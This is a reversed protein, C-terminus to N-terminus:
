AVSVQHGRPATQPITVNVPLLQRLHWAQTVLKHQALRNARGLVAAQIGCMVVTALSALLITFMSASSGFEMAGPQLFLGHNELRWTGHIVGAAELLIPGILGALMIAILVWARGKEVFAPYTVLSATIFAALAPVFTFGSALRGLVVIMAANGIAYAVWIGFSREPQKVLRSAAIALAIGSVLMAAAVFWNQVGTWVIIPLFAAIMVYGPIASRAHRAVDESDARRLMDRLEQPAEQPPELMLKTVIEAAGEVQPDLAMARSADRMAEARQNEDLSSRAHWVLDIALARRSVLDRDGDLFEEIRDACRRATPRDSSKMALMATTLSDLEPPIARDPRRMAPSIITNKSLTSPTAEDGRPHVPEGALIEFLISGLAYIDASRTVDPHRMQEPAMYGPTGFV